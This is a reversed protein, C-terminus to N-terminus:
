PSSLRYYGTQNGTIPLTVVFQGNVIIPPQQLTVRVFGAAGLDVTKQLYWGAYNAPWSLAISAGSVITTLKPEITLKFVAGLNNTGGYATTGYFYGDSGEVLAAEPNAGDDTGSFSYLSTFAGNTSIRFLTGVGQGYQNTHAGGYATTGYFNGDSGQVLAAEPNAGDNTGSFSYLSAFAGNTGIRFVTGVGQGYQNTRAGGNVTTGYFNGDSGQVLAAEPKAGDNTGTFSYLSTFAGNASIRFVTGAGNTGGSETTGYFNGDSGQVLGAVPNAGDNTGTFSYLNTLTGNTTINFVTGYGGGNVTTGYFTGDRGQALGGQPNASMFGGYFSYLSTLAGNTTINFVTGPGPIYEGSATGGLETTGYFTGDSGEVLTAAPNAGYYPISDDFAYLTTLVGNPSIKFVTGNDMYLQPGGSTSTGYFNGDGGQVLGAVPNAGNTGGTFSYLSTFVEGTQASGALVGLQLVGGMALGCLANKTKV